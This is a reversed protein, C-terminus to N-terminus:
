SIVRVDADTAARLARALRGGRRAFREGAVLVVDFQAGATWEVLSPRTTGVFTTYTARRALSGLMARAERLEEAAAARVACNYLGASGGGCCKLPDAQPALTMVVLDAGSAVLEGAEVLVRGGRRGAEYIALVRTRERASGAMREAGVQGADVIAIGM